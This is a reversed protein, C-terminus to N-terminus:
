YLGQRFMLWKMRHVAQHSGCAGSHVTFIAVFAENKNLCRLLVGEAIKKFLENGIIM